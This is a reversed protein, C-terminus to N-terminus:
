SAWGQIVLLPEHFLYWVPRYPDFHVNFVLAVDIQDMPTGPTMNEGGEVFAALISYSGPGLHMEFVFDVVFRRGSPDLVIGEDISSTGFLDIRNRDRVIFSLGLQPGAPELREAHLRLRVRQGYTVETLAEQTEYDLLEVATLRGKRSGYREVQDNMDGLCSDKKFDMEEDSRGLRGGLWWIENVGQRKPPGALLYVTHEDDRLFFHVTEIEMGELRFLEILSSHGDVVVRVSGSHPHHLFQLDLRDGYFRFGAAAGQDATMLAPSEELVARELWQGRRWVNKQAAGLTEIVPLQVDPLLSEPFPRHTTATAQVSQLDPTKESLQVQATIDEMRLFALYREVAVGAEGFYMAQGQDLWLARRCFRKVTAPDHSVLLVAMGTNVMTEIRAMCKHQFRIDGVALAEDVILVDPDFSTAVAFGLRVYMGSSYLKVPQDLFQGIGAFSAIGDMRSEIDAHTLGLIAGNMFVNERGTFEPNFGAGLELLANARGEVQVEGSTPNLIGAVIQLLTSKGSGNRGIVGVTEGREVEFSIDQLAWFERAYSKGFRWLLSQKLRDQPRDYLMYRKGVSRARVALGDMPLSPSGGAPPRVAVSECSM